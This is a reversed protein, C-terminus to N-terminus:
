RPEPEAAALISDVIDTYGTCRCIVGSIAATVQDRSPRPTRELLATAAILMGPTCFGCQLGHHDLFAQQLRSLQGAEGGIGEVTTVQCGEAQAALMLCSRVVQGDVLVNCAGCVGQECGLHTATLSLEDRLCDALSLRPEVELEVPRGNVFFHVAIPSPAEPM